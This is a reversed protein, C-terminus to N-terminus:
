ENPKGEVTPNRRAITVLRSGGVRGDLREEGVFSPLPSGAPQGSGDRLASGDPDAVVARFDVRCGVLASGSAANAQNHSRRLISFSGSGQFSRPLRLARRFPPQM